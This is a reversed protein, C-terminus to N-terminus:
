FEVTLDAGFTRAPVYNASGIFRITQLAFTLERNQTLNRVWGALEAKAGGIELNRLAVRTNVMWSAGVTTVGAFGPVSQKRNQAVWFKSHWNGDMRFMLTSDGFLPETEYQGWLGGTWKARLAPQYDGGAQAILVPNVDTFKTDTYSLSGGVTLGRTPAATLEFEFGKSKV